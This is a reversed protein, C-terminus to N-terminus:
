YKYGIYWTRKKNKYTTTGTKDKLVYKDLCTLIECQERQIETTNNIYPANGVHHNYYKDFRYSKVKRGTKYCRFQQLKQTEWNFKGTKDYIETDDDDDDVMEKLIRTFNSYDEVNKRNKRMIEELESTRPSDPDIEIKIPTAVTGTVLQEESRKYAMNILIEQPSIDGQCAILDDVQNDNQREGEMTNEIFKKPGVLFKEPFKWDSGHEKVFHNNVTNGRCGVQYDEAPERSTCALVARVPGYDTHAFSISEGTPNYNGIIIFPRETNVGNKKLYKLLKSLKTNFEGNTMVRDVVEEKQDYLLHYKNGENGYIALVIPNLNIKLKRKIGRFTKTHFMKSAEEALYKTIIKRNPTNLLHLNFKKPQYFDKGLLNNMNIFNIGNEIAEKEQDQKMFSCFEFERKRNIYLNRLVHALINKQVSVGNKIQAHVDEWRHLDEIWKYNGNKYSTPDFYKLFEKELKAVSWTKFKPIDGEHVRKYLEDDVRKPINKTKWLPNKKLQECSYKIADGCSSYNASDSKITDFETYNIGNNKLNELNWVPNDEDAIGKEKVFASATVPCNSLVNEELLINEIVDRNPPIAQNSNHAEDHIIRINKRLTPILNNYKTTLDLIDNIRTGNSCCFVVKFENEVSLKSWADNMNGCHTVGKVKKSSVVMVLDALSLNPNRKKIEALLRRFWQESAELTNKTICITITNEESKMTFLIRQNCIGTKMSQAHKYLGKIKEAVYKYITKQDEESFEDKLIECWEKILPYFSLKKTKKNIYNRSKKCRRRLNPYKNKFIKLKQKDGKIKEFEEQIELTKESKRQNFRTVISGVNTPSSM